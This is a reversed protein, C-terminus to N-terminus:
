HKAITKKKTTKVPSTKKKYYSAPISQGKNPFDTFAEKFMADIVRQSDRTFFRDYGIAAWVLRNTIPNILGLVLVGEPRDDDLWEESSSEVIGKPLRLQPGYRALSAQTQIGGIFTFILQGKTADFTLHHQYFNAEFVAQMNSNASERNVTDRNVLVKGPKFRYTKIISFNFSSDRFVKVTQANSTGFYFFILLFSLFTIPKIKYQLTM